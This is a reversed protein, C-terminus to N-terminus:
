IFMHQFIHFVVTLMIKLCFFVISQEFSFLWTHLKLMYLLFCFYCSIQFHIFPLAIIYASWISHSTTCCLKLSNCQYNFICVRFWLIVFCFNYTILFNLAYVLVIFISLSGFSPLFSIFLPFFSLVISFLLLFIYKFRDM